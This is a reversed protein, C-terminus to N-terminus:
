IALSYSVKLKLPSMCLSRVGEISFGEVLYKLADALSDNGHSRRM